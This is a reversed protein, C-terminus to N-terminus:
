ALSAELLSIEDATLDFLRYVIVDIEREAKEIEQTLRCVEASNEALYMEWDRREKVPIDARFAKKVEERFASFSLEHFAELKGNLRKLEPPALDLIRHRVDSQVARRRGAGVSTTGALLAIPKGEPFAPIILKEV